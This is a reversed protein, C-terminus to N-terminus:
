YGQPCHWYANPDAIPRVWGACRIAGTGVYSYEWPEPDPGQAGAGPPYNPVFGFRKANAYNNAALWREVPSGLFRHGVAGNSGVFDVTRGGHHKSYGPPAVLGMLSLLAGDAQGRAIQAASYPIRGLFLSRQHSATRYGYTVGLYLGNRRAEAALRTMAQAADANLTVGGYPARAATSFGRLRYGRGEALSRIRADASANGTIPIAGPAGVGSLRLTDYLRRLELGSMQPYGPDPWSPAFVTPDVPQGRSGDIDGVLPQYLGGVQVATSTFSGNGRSQWLRDYTSGPGYWFIDEHGDGDHDVVSPVFRGDVQQPRNTFTGNGVAMWLVDPASGAGYWFVDDDGDADHDLVLPQYHGSISAPRTAFTGDGRSLWLVDPASGPGYWLIDDRGDGDADLAVPAFVGRVQLSVSRFGGDAQGLWLRDVGSGPAYWFLDDRGDGNADLALPSASSRGASRTTFTGDGRGLWLADSDNGGADWLIDDVGNGDVDLPVPRYRGSISLSSTAFSSGGRSRWLHDPTAGPAYWIIDSGPTRDFQGVISTYRGGVSLGSSVFSGQGLSRWLHDQGSGPAYFILDDGNGSGAVTLTLSSSRSAGTADTATVRVTASGTTRPAGSIRNGSLSLGAPLGTASWSYPATGGVAYVAAAYTSGVKGAPLANTTIILELACRAQSRAVYEPSSALTAALRVDNVRLLRAVWHALGSAEPARGLIRDYLRTVRDRRSEPSGFLQAAVGNTGLGPLRGVWYASGPGDVSRHLIRDYLAAVFGEPTGGARTYSENSGYLSAAMRNVLVGRRLEGTWFREGAADPNRDLAARYLTRVEERLWADSRSLADPLAHTEAGRAFGALWFRVEDPSAPRQAFLRYGADTFCALEEAGARSEPAPGATSTSDAAAPLAGAVLTLCLVLGVARRRIAGRRPAGRMTFGEM